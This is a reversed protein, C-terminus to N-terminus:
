SVLARQRPRLPETYCPCVIQTRVRLNTTSFSKIVSDYLGVCSHFRCDHMVHWALTFTVLHSTVLTKGRLSAHWGDTWSRVTVGGEGLKTVLKSPAWVYARRTCLPTPLYYRMYRMPADRAYPLLYTTACIACPTLTAM